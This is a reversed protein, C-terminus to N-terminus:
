MNVCVCHLVMLFLFPNDSVYKESYETGVV